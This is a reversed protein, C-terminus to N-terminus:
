LQRILSMSPRVTHCPELAGTGECLNEDTSNKGDGDEEVESQTGNECDEDSLQGDLRPSAPDTDAPVYLDSLM